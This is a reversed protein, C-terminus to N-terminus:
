MMFSVLVGTGVVLLVILVVLLINLPNSWLSQKRPLDETTLNPATPVAGQPPPPGPVSPSPPPSPAPSLKVDPMIPRTAVAEDSEPPRMRDQMMQQAMASIGAAQTGLTQHDASAVISDIDGIIEVASQYRHSPHKQTARWLLRGAPGQLLPQPIPVPAPDLIRSLVDIPNLGGYLPAGSLMEVFMIGFSFLDSQPTLTEGRIREPAMYGPSGIVLGTRTKLSSPDRASDLLKAIGFDLVKAVDHQGGVEGVIVNSPKLDRHIVQHGHAESLSLLIQRAISLGRGVTLAGERHLLDDLPLGRLYQMVIFPLGNELRGFDFIQITNPHTLLRAMKAEREFRQQSDQDASARPDLVKIAVQRYLTVDTALYVTGMGGQGLRRELRYKSRIVTGPEPLLTPKYM